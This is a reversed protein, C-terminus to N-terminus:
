RGTQLCREKCMGQPKYLAFDPVVTTADHSIVYRTISIATKQTITGHLRFVNVSPGSAWAAKLM